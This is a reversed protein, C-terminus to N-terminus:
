LTERENWWRIGGKFYAQSLQKAVADDFMVSRGHTVTGGLGEYLNLKSSKSTLEVFGDLRNELSYQCAFAVLCKGIGMYRRNSNLTDNIFKKNISAAEIIDVDVCLFDPDRNQKLAILGQVDTPYPETVLGYVKFGHTIPKLWDFDWTGGRSTYKKEKVEARGVERFFYPVSLGSQLEIIM